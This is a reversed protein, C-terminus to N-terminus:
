ITESCRKSNNQFLIYMYMNVLGITKYVVVSSQTNFLQNVHIVIANMCISLDMVQGNIQIAISKVVFMAM